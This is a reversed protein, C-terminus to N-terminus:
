KSLKEAKPAPTPSPDLLLELPNVKLVAAIRDVTDLTINRDGNEVGSFYSRNFDGALALAEQTFGERIRVRKLNAVFRLRLQSAPRKVKEDVLASSLGDAPYAM